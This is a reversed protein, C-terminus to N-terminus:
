DDDWTWDQNESQWKQIKPHLSENSEAPVEFWGVNDVEALKEVLLAFESALPPFNASRPLHTATEFLDIQACLMYQGVHAIFLGTEGANEVQLCETAVGYTKKTSDDDEDHQIECMAIHGNEVIDLVKAKWGLCHREQEKWTAENYYAGHPGMANYFETPDKTVYYEKGVEINVQPDRIGDGQPNGVADHAQWVWGSGDQWYSWGSKHPAARLKACAGIWAGVDGTRKNNKKVTWKEGAFCVKRGIKGAALDDLAQHCNTKINNDDSEDTIVFGSEDQAWLTYDGQRTSKIDQHRLVYSGHQRTKSPYHIIMIDHYGCAELNKVLPHHINSYTNEDTYEYYPYSEPGDNEYGEIDKLQLYTAKESAAM